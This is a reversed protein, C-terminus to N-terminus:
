SNKQASDRTVNISAEVLSLLFHGYLNVISFLKKGEPVVAWNM